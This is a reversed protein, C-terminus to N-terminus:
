SCSVLSLVLFASGFLMTAALILGRLAKRESRRADHEIGIAPTVRISPRPERQKVTPWPDEPMFEDEEMEDIHHDQDAMEADGDIIEFEDAAYDHVDIDDHDFGSDEEGIEDAIRVAQLALEGAADDHLILEIPGEDTRLMIRGLADDPHAWAKGVGRIHISKIM